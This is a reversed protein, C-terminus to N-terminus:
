QLVSKIIMSKFVTEEWEAEPNSTKTIGGGVFIHANKGQVQMCRLNVYLQTSKQTFTYARNEINRKSSRPTLTNELNLEGLFGTYFDRNYGENELIFKKAEQKPMGCVAPTPHLDFIVQKLTSEGSKLQAAIMTRLHLLSGAKVTKTESVNLHEVLPRLNELIFNTVIQQEKKEKDQWVVDLTGNYNQTGALAMISFRNGEIKILTEPTAGLWLGVKPHYWCYVFASPYTNLLRKIITAPNTNKIAITEKRSLVVKEFQNNNIAAIGKKVLSLHHEKSQSDDNIVSKEVLTINAIKHQTQFFESIGFPILITNETADFPSFVFGSETFTKAIHLEDDKQQLLNVTESNPKRYVVFPLQSEYQTEVRSFFDDSTM